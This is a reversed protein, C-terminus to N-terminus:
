EAKDDAFRARFEGVWVHDKKEVAFEADGMPNVPGVVRAFLGIRSEANSGAIGRPEGLMGFREVGNQKEGPGDEADRETRM